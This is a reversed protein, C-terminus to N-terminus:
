LKIEILNPTLFTLKKGIETKQRNQLNIFILKPEIQIRFFQKLITSKVIETLISGASYILLFFTSINKYGNGLIPKRSISLM